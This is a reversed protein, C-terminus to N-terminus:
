EDLEMACRGALLGSSGKMKPRLELRVENFMMSLKASDGGESRLGAEELEVADNSLTAMGM